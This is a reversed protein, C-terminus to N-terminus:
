RNRKIYMIGQVFGLQKALNALIKNCLGNESRVAQIGTLIADIIKQSIKRDATKVENEVQRTEKRM